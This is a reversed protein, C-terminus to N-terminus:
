RGANTREAACLLIINHQLMFLFKIIMVIIGNYRSYILIVSSIELYTRYLVYILCDCRIRRVSLICMAPTRYVELVVRLSIIEFGTTNFNYVRYTNYSNANRQQVTYYTGSDKAVINLIISSRTLHAHAPLHASMKLAPFLNTIFYSV